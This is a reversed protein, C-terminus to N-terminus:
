RARGTESFLRQWLTGFECVPAFPTRAVHGSGRGGIWRPRPERLYRRGEGDVPVVVVPGRRLAPAMVDVRHVGIGMMVAIVVRQLAEGASAVVVADEAAVGSVGAEGAYGACEM